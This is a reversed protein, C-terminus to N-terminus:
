QLWLVLVPAGNSAIHHASSPFFHTAFPGKRQSHGQFLLSFHAAFPNLALEFDGRVL